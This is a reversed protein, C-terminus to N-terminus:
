RESTPMLPHLGRREEERCRLEEWQALLCRLWSTPWSSKGPLQGKKAGDPFSVRGSHLGDKGSGHIENLM